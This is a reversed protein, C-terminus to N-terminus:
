EVGKIGDADFFIEMDCSAAIHMELRAGHSNSWGSLMFIADCGLMERLDRKMYCSWSHASSDTTGDDGCICDDAPMLRYPNLADFGAETLLKEADDFSNSCAGSDMGTIPGSIYVRKKKM